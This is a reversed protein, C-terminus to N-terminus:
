RICVAYLTTIANKNDVNVFGMRWTHETTPHSLILNLVAANSAYGGSLVKENPQCDITFYNASGTTIVVAKARTTVVATATSAPGPISAVKLATQGNLRKANDALLARRALPVAADVVANATGALAVFLALVAIFLEPTPKRM